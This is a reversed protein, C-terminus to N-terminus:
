PNVAKIREDIGDLEVILEMALRGRTRGAV